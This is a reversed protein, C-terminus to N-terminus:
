LQRARVHRMEYDLPAHAEIHPIKLSFFRYRKVNLGHGLKTFPCCRYIATWNFNIRHNKPCLSGDIRTVGNKAHVM